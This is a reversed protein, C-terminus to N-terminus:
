RGTRSRRLPKAMATLLVFPPMSKCGNRASTVATPHCEFAALIKGSVLRASRVAPLHSGALGPGPRPDQGGLRGTCFPPLLGVTANRRIGKASQALAHDAARAVRRCYSRGGFVGAFIVIQHHRRGRRVDFARGPPTSTVMATLLGNSPM